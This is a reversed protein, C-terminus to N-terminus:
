KEKKSFRIGRSRREQETIKCRRTGNYGDRLSQSETWLSIRWRIRKRSNDKWYRNRRTRDRKVTNECNKRSTERNDKYAINLKHLKATDIFPM